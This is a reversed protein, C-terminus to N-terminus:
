RLWPCRGATVDMKNTSTHELQKCRVQPHDAGAQKAVEHELLEDLAAVAPAHKQLEVDAPLERWGTHDVMSM